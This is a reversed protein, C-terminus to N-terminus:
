SQGCRPVSVNAYRFHAAQRQCGVGYATCTRLSPNRQTRGAAHAWQATSSAEGPGPADVVWSQRTPSARGSPRGRWKASARHCFVSPLAPRPLGQQETSARQGPAYQERVPWEGTQQLFVAM